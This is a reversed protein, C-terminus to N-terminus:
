LNQSYTRISFWLSDFMPREVIASSVSVLASNDQLSWLFSTESDRYIRKNM